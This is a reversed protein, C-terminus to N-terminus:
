ETGYDDEQDDFIHTLDEGDKLIKDLQKGTTLPTMDLELEAMYKELAFKMEKDSVWQIDGYDSLAMGIHRGLSQNPYKKRLDLLLAVSKEYDSKKM